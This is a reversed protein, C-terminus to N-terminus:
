KNQFDSISLQEEKVKLSKVARLNLKDDERVYSCLLPSNFDYKVYNNDVSEQSYTAYCYKCGNKCTNYMGIEISEICGCELRQNKDKRADIKCGSIDEILEKDICANHKIGYADLDVKEACSAIEMSNETAIEKLKKVFIILEENELEYSGLNRMNKKNKNYVDVFSIVCKETYNKLSRAIEEFARLHYQPTYKESFFIPDYRWIVKEKGIKKALRQFIPIMEYKKHPVNPEVDTGYGTLSFQFYYNYGELEDIRDLMPEPNKTWFVICDIIDSSLLIKSVQHANMPNRVCLYGEKLANFFWDSYYNPIDTRRSVSLIM